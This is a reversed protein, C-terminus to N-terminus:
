AQLEIVESGKGILAIDAMDLFIGHEVVGPMNELEQAVSAPDALEKFHCDLIRHGEDTVFPEGSADKRLTVTAGLETIKWALLPEAFPIVEVPVPTKGLKSVPKTSDAIVIFQRAAFAVVKERLLAGGRGKILELSPGIEDAGDIAVDVVASDEFTILPIGISTALEATKRSTPIGRIRLGSQMMEGLLRIFYSATSGTGLGVVQGSHIYRLSQRAAAEKEKEVDPMAAEKPM